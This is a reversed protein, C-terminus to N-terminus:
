GKNKTSTAYLIIIALSLILTNLIFDSKTQQQQEQIAEKIKQKSDDVVPHHLLYNFNASKGWMEIQLIEDPMLNFMFVTSSDIVFGGPLVQLELSPQFQAPDVNCFMSKNFDIGTPEKKVYDYSQYYQSFTTAKLYVNRIDYGTYRLIQLFQQYSLAPSATTVTVPNTITTIIPFVAAM